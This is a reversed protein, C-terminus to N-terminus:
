SRASRASGAKPRASSPLARRALLRLSSAPYISCRLFARLISGCFGSILASAAFAFSYDIHLTVAAVDTDDYAAALGPQQKKAVSDTVRGLHSPLEGLSPDVVRFLQDILHAPLQPLLDSRIGDFDHCTGCRQETIIIGFICDFLPPLIPSLLLPPDERFEIITRIRDINM